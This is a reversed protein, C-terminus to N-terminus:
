RNETPMWAAQFARLNAEAADFLDQQSRRAGQLLEEALKRNARQFAASEDMVLKATEIGRAQLKLGADFAALYYDSVADFAKQSARTTVDAAAHVGDKTETATAM